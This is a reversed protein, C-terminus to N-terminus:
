FAFTFLAMLQCGFTNYALAGQTSIKKKNSTFEILIMRVLLRRRYLCIFSLWVCTEYSRLALFTFLKPASPRLFFSSIEIGFSLRMGPENRRHISKSFFFYIYIIFNTVCFSSFHQAACAAITHSNSFLRLRYTCYLFILPRYSIADVLYTFCTCCPFSKYSTWVRYRLMRWVVRLLICLSSMM